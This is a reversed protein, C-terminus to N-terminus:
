SSICMATRGCGDRGEWSGCRLRFRVSRCMAWGIGSRSASRASSRKGSALAREVAAEVDGSSWKPMSAKAAAKIPTPAHEDRPNIGRRVMDFYEDRFGATIPDIQAAAPSIAIGYLDRSISSRWKGGPRNDIGKIYGLGVTKDETGDWFEPLNSPDGKLGVMNHDVSSGNRFAAVSGGGALNSRLTNSITRGGFNELGLNQLYADIAGGPKRWTKAAKALMETAEPGVDPDQLLLSLEELMFYMLKLGGMDPDGPLFFDKGNRERGHDDVWPVHAIYNARRDM